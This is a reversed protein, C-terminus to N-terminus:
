LHWPEMLIGVRQVAIAFAEKSMYRSLETNNAGPQAAISKTHGRAAVIRRQLELAFLLDALKSQAYERM